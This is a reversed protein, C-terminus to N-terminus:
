ANNGKWVPMTTEEGQNIDAKHFVKLITKYIIEMDLIFSINEVYWVDLKFKEDWSITNRGNVQAWGTIGPLVNHRKSQEENYLPLYELLLPRPGVLSMDGKLVNILQLIEDLSYKRIFAGLPTVRKLSHIDIESGEPIDRMTKFKIIRFKRGHKGPRTQLFFPSGNNVYWLLAILILLLPSLVSLLVLASLRDLIKKFLNKYM